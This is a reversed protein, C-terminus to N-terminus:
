LAARIEMGGGRRTPLPTLVSINRPWATEPWSLIIETRECAKLIAEGRRTLAFLDGPGLIVDQTSRDETLWALGAELRVDVRRGDTIILLNGPLLNVPQRHVCVHDITRRWQWLALSRRM